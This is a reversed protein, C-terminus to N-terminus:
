SHMTPQMIFVSMFRRWYSLEDYVRHREMFIYYHSKCMGAAHFLDAFYALVEPCKNFGNQLREEQHNNEKYKSTFGTNCILCIVHGNLM